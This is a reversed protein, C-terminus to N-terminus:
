PAATPKVVTPSRTHRPTQPSPPHVPGHHPPPDEAAAAAPLPPVDPIAVSDPAPAGQVVPIIARALLEDIAEEVEVFDSWGTPLELERDRTLLALQEQAGRTANREIRLATGFPFTEAVLTRLFVESADLSAVLVGAEGSLTNM